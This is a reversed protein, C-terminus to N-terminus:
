YRWLPITLQQGPSLSAEPTLGNAQALATTSLGCQFAISNLTDDPQVEYVNPGQTIEGTPIFLGQGSIVYYSMKVRNVLALDPWPVDFRWAIGSLTDGYQVRYCFGLTASAPPTPTGPTPTSTPTATSPTGDNNAPPTPGTITVNTIDQGPEGCNDTVTLSVLYTRPDSYGHTVTEGSESPSGDDFDWEYSSITGDPDTSNSGDFNIIAQGKGRMAMYPGGADATPPVNNDCASAAAVTPVQTATPGPVPATTATAAVTEETPEAVLTPAETPQETPEATPEVTAPPEEEAEITPEPTETAAPLEDSTETTPAQTEEAAPEETAPPLSETETPQPAPTDPGPAPIFSFTQGLSPVDFPLLGLRIIALCGICLLVLIFLILIILRLPNRRPPEHGNDEEDEEEDRDLEEFEEKLGNEDGADEDFTGDFDFDTAM